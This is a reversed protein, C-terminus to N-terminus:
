PQVTASDARELYNYPVVGTGIVDGSEDLRDATWWDGTRQRIRFRDGAVFSLETHDRAEFAWLAVYVESHEPEGPKPLKHASPSTNYRQGRDPDSNSVKRELGDTKKETKFMRDWLTRLCPCSKRLCEEMRERTRARHM